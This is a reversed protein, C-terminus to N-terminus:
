VTDVLEEIDPEGIDRGSVDLLMGVYHTDLITEDSPRDDAINLQRRGLHVNPEQLFSRSSLCALLLLLLM